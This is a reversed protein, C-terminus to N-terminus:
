QQFTPTTPQQTEQGTLIQLLEVMRSQLEERRRASAMAPDVGSANGGGGVAQMSSVVHAAGQYQQTIDAQTEQLAVSAAKDKGMLPLLQEFNKAAASLDEAAEAGRVDGRSRAQRGRIDTQIEFTQVREQRLEEPRPAAEERKKALGAQVESEELARPTYAALAEPGALTKARQKKIELARKEDETAGEPPQQKQLMYYEKAMRLQEARAELKTASFEPAALQIKQREKMIDTIERESAEASMRHKAEEEPTRDKREKFRERNATLEEQVTVRRSELEGLKREADAQYKLGARAEADRQVVGKTQQEIEFRRQAETEVLKKNVTEAAAANRM